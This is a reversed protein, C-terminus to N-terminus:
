DSCESFNVSFGNMLFITLNANEDARTKDIIPDHVRNNM